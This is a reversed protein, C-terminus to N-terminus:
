SLQYPDHLERVTLRAQRALWAREHWANGNMARISSYQIYPDWTLHEPVSKPSKGLEGCIQGSPLRCQKSSVLGMGLKGARFM